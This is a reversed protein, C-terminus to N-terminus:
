DGSDEEKRKTKEIEKFLRDMKEGYEMSGDLVFRLEPVTRAHVVKALESRIKKAESQIAKFTKEKKGPNVSFVSVYVRANSLDKSTDVGLISFMETIDPNKVKRSIIEYIDKKFEENLKSTRNSNGKM